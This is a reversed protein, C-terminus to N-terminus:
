VYFVNHILNITMRQINFGRIHSFELFSQMKTREILSLDFLLQLTSSFLLSLCCLIETRIIDNLVFINFICKYFDFTTKELNESKLKNM